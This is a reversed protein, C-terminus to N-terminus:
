FSIGLSRLMNIYKGYWNQTYTSETLNQLVQSFSEFICLLKTFIFLISERCVSLWSRVTTVGTCRNTVSNDTCDTHLWRVTWATQWVVANLIVRTQSATVRASARGSATPQVFTFTSYTTSATIDSLYLLLNENNQWIIHLQMNIYTQKNKM